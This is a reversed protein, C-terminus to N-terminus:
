DSRPRRWFNGGRKQWTEEAEYEIWQNVVLRQATSINACDGTSIRRDCNEEPLKRAQGCADRKGRLLNFQMLVPLQSEILFREL